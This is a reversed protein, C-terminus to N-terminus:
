TFAVGSLRAISAAVLVANILIGLGLQWNWFLSLLATSLAAAIIALIPWAAALGPVGWVALALIAFAGIIAVLLTHAVPRRVPAPVLWSHELSFSPETALYLLHVCGHALLMAGLVVRILGIFEPAIAEMLPGILQPAAVHSTVMM